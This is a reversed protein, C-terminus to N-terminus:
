ARDEDDFGSGHFGPGGTGPGSTGPPPPDAPRPIGPLPLPPPAHLPGPPATSPAAPPGEFLHDIRAALGGGESRERANYYHLAMATLPIAYFFAAFTGLVTGVAMLARMWGSLGAPDGQVSGFMTVGMVIVAPFSLALAFGYWILGSLLVVGVSAGWYRRLLRHAEGLADGLPRGEMVGGSLALLSMPALYLLAAIMFVAGLPGSAQGLVMVLVWLAGMVGLVALVRVLHHSAEAWVVSPGLRGAGGARYLRLYGLVVAVVLAGGIVGGLASVIYTPTGVGRMMEDNFGEAATPDRMAEGFGESMVGLMRTQVFYSAVGVVLLVPGAVYLLALGLEWWTERLITFTSSIVAGADREVRFHVRGNDGPPLVDPDAPM